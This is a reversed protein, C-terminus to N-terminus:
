IDLIYKASYLRKLNKRRQVLDRRDFILKELGTWAFVWTFITFVQEVLLGPTGSVDSLLVSVILTIASFVIMLSSVLTMRRIDKDLHYIIPVLEQKVYEVVKHLEIDNDNPDVAVTVSRKLPVYKTSEELIKILEIAAISEFKKTQIQIRVTDEDVISAFHVLRLQLDDISALVEKIM